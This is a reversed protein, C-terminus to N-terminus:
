TPTAELAWLQYGQQKLSVATDVGNNAYSWPLISEAGLATKAIKPHTPPATIGCLHLHRVGAGDATRIMAGVNFISRINDLMVELQPLRTPVHSDTIAPYTPISVATTETKCRPCYNGKVDTVAAPFRFRCLGNKCQRILYDNM